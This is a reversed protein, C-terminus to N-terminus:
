NSLRRPISSTRTLSGSNIMGSSDILRQASSEVSYSTTSKPASIESQNERHKRPLVFADASGRRSGMAEPPLNHTVTGKLAQNIRPGEGPASSRRKLVPTIPKVSRRSLRRGLTAVNVVAAISAGNNVESTDKLQPSLSNGVTESPESAM